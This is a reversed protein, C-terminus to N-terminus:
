KAVIRRTSHLTEGNREITLRLDWQGPASLADVSVYRGPAAETFTLATVMDAGLPRRAQALVTAGVLPQGDAGTLVVVPRQKDASSIVSWGLAGEKAAQALVQDYSNSHDFVDLAAVGPFTSLAWWVMLGNVFVVIGLAGAMGHPFYRWITRPHPAVHSAM